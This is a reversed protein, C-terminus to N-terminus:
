SRPHGPGTRYRETIHRPARRRAGTLSTDTDRSDPHLGAERIAAQGEALRAPNRQGRGELPRLRHRHEDAGLRNRRASTATRRVREHDLGATALHYFVGHPGNRPPMEDLRMM